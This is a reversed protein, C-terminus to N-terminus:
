ISKSTTVPKRKLTGARWSPSVFVCVCVGVHKWRGRPEKDNSLDSSDRAEDDGNKDGRSGKPGWYTSGDM